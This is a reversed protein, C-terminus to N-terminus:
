LRGIQSKKERKIELDNKAKYYHFKFSMKKRRKFWRRKEDDTEIREKLNRAKKHRFLRCEPPNEGAPCKKKFIKYTKMRIYNKM